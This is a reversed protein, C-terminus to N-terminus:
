TRIHASVTITIVEVTGVTGAKLCTVGVRARAVLLATEPMTPAMAFTAALLVHEVRPAITITGHHKRRISLSSGITLAPRAMLQSSPATMNISHSRSSPNLQLLLQRAPLPLPLHTWGSGLSLPHRTVPLFVTPLMSKLTPLLPLPLLPERAEETHPMINQM